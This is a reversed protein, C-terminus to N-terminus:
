PLANETRPPDGALVQRVRMISIGHRRAILEDHDGRRHEAHIQRDREALQQRGSEGRKPIYHREGGWDARAELEVERAVAAPLRPYKQRIRELIDAVLALHAM